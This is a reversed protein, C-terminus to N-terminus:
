IISIRFEFVRVKGGKRNVVSAAEHRRAPWSM